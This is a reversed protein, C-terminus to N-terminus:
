HTKSVKIDQIENKAECKFYEFDKDWNQETKQKLKEGEEQAFIHRLVRARSLGIM